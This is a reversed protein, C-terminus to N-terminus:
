YGHQSAECLNGTNYVNELSNHAYQSFLKPVYLPINREAWLSFFEGWNNSVRAMLRVQFLLWPSLQDM